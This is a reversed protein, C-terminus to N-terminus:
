KRTFANQLFKFKQLNLERKAFLMLAAVGMLFSITPAGYKGLKEYLIENIGLGIKGLSSIEFGYFALSSFFKSFVYVFSIYFFISSLFFLVTRKLSLLRFFYAIGMLLFPIPVLCVGFGLFYILEASLSAGWSGVLNKVPASPFTASNISPDLPSYSFVGLLYLFVLTILSFFVIDWLYSRTLNSNMRM